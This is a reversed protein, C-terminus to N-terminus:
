SMFADPESLFCEEAFVGEFGILADTDTLPPPRVRVEAFVTSRRLLPPPKEGADCALAPNDVRFMVPISKESFCELFVDNCGFETAVSAM